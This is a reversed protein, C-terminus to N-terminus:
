DFGQWSQQRQDKELSSHMDVEVFADERVAVVVIGGLRM